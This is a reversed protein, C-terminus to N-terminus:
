LNNKIKDLKAHAKKFMMLYNDEEKVPIVELGLKRHEEIWSEEFVPVEIKIPEPTKNVVILNRYPFNREVIYGGLSLIHYPRMVFKM